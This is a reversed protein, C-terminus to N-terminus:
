NGAFELIDNKEFRLNGIIFEQRIPTNKGMYYALIEDIDTEDNLFVPDLRIDSGIFGSFEDPSIEGLGKFRTIEPKGKLKEIAEQKEKESYCYFKQNKDRVRFLPTDLIYVHGSRVLDPFFQLFFTLLLLRIHMGDVDADTAIVIQNYRLDEIGDEINLAHQLLNFEENEYVVKKTMGFCNLPKGRLSFVAQFQVNRAKTISGSASDGETIFLTTKNRDEDSVKKPPDNFHIRCDRLKKNHLNAKKARQNALKKIDAIETRERESQLIRKEILKAIEPNKHLYNDLQEKVFNGIFTRVSPADPGMHSSGLKTKTQSEFVPEEVRISVAAMISSLVDRRDYNKKFFEAVTKAIADKFALLHTGGQTTNQGNVFSYYLEGYQNGHTIALEIDDGKLHIIPYRLEDNKTKRELLDLLGNKSVITTGNFVLKLGANLYAYNWLQNEIFEKRFRFNRFIEPDPEFYVWTGNSESSDLLSSENVLLGQNFDAKKEKGDRYSCVMFKSSLANVAKTGVGNLGVSKKFAKSDYKGGTNIQSVCEIVKGLPIGRGFDRIEMSHDDMKIVVQKGHGMVFEDITNDIVEKILIYIGDDPTSGDGLKGIYMGPRLRIHERWDLSIINDESYNNELM